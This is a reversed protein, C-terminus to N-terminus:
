AQRQGHACAACLTKGNVSLCVRDRGAQKAAYLAKDAARLLDDENDMGNERNAVGISVSTRIEVGSINIQMAKVMQRLREAALLAARPDADHCILLFEEGGIRSVSDDKRAASQIAKAVQHLVRDGVAHGYRDNISKFLDVDIMLAAVPQATRQSAGWFRKLLEMGARRNPLETLPDTMATHELRRNSIALEATFQKLQARDNEWAELLKVYHLAARMRASLARVNVPKTVYDDVGAEFAEIIKSENEEGTLMIVYISQGWETARMARCLEIGDMVPMHWDTIVIQPMVELALALGDEGNEAIHVRCGLLHSLLGETMMLTTPDDEVLLVRKRSHETRSEQEPRPVPANAMAGFSPLQAAPVKLLDAWEQWQHVARDFVEGMATADLGVKGGLLMLEVINGHRETEPTRGLDAMRRAQFFLHTLQDPRSGESFGSTQPFEHYYVPEALAKPIGCDALIAATFETHDAGLHKRELELLVAGDSQGALVAAYDTPHLTALALCGIQALLGCAFLEDPSAVRVMRGLEQSAVAMFLSHSWFAPYDFAACQGQLYQDVLSFGMALQRVTTMGLRMVTERVSVLPRVGGASANALRLLRSSLAPDGQVVRAVEDITADERRSIEMIALAVGKPSPLQGSIRLQEIKSM